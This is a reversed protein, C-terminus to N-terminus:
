KPKYFFLFGFMLAIVLLGFYFSESVLKGVIILIIFFGLLGVVTKVTNTLLKVGKNEPIDGTVEGTIGNILNRYFGNNCTYSLSFMPLLAFTSTTYTLKTSCGNLSEVEHLCALKEFAKVTKNCIEKAETKGLDTTLVQWGDLYSEDYSKLDLQSFKLTEIEEQTIARSASIMPYYNEYHHGTVPEWVTREKTFPVQKSEYVGPGCKTEWETYAETHSVEGYWASEASVEFLWVPVWIGKINELNRAIDFDKHKFKKKDIWSQYHYGADKISMQFKAISPKAEEVTKKMPLTQANTEVM